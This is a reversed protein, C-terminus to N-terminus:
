NKGGVQQQSFKVAVIATCSKAKIQRSGKKSHSIELTTFRPRNKLKSIETTIRWPLSELLAHLTCNGLYQMLPTSFGLFVQIPLLGSQQTEPM